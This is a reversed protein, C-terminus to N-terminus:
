REEYKRLSEKLFAAFMDPDTNFSYSGVLPNGREDVTVYFPQSNSGFEKNQLYSWKDGLTRLYRSKAGLNVELKQALPTKDDVFLQVLVFQENLIKSVYPDSWVESEMQRCNVCGYGTFDVLVPKGCIAAFRLGEKYDNFQAKVSNEPRGWHQTSMPPLFASIINLQKGWLGPIMYAAYFFCVSALIARLANIKRKEEHPFYFVGLLNFGLIISLIIWVILFYDRGLIHWGYTMDAVSLFKFAFFLEIFGLIIKFTMMWGGSKPMSKLWKPFMAFLAFPMALALSFGFMGVLPAAVRGMTSVEVLLFGVVPGTCSFSVLVLTFAMLFIGLLGRSIESKDNIKNSWSSPLSIEFFGFLSFAFVVLILFFFINVVANTSLSNLANAGLIATVCLGLILYIVIISLGYILSDRFGNKKDRKLFFSVTMPIIPWVCPTFLALLGGMVGWLFIDGLSKEAVSDYDGILHEASPSYEPVTRTEDPGLTGFSTDKLSKSDNPLSHLSIVADQTSDSDVIPKDQPNTNKSTDQNQYDVNKKSIVGSTSFEVTSPPICSENDCAGYELYGALEYKEDSVFKFKQSFIAVNEFYAVKSEFVKDFVQKPTVKETLDGDKELGSIKEINLSTPTPGNEIKHTSYVHWGEDISMTFRLEAERGNVIFETKTEVQAFATITAYFFLVVLNVMFKYYSNLDNIKMNCFYIFFIMIRTNLM